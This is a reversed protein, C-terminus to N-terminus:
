DLPGVIGNWTLLRLAEVLRQEQKPLELQLRQENLRFADCYSTFDIIKPIGSRDVLWNKMEVRGNKPEIDLDPLWDEQQLLILLSSFLCILEKRTPQDVRRLDITDIHRADIFEQEIFDALFQTKAVYKEDVYRLIKLYNIEANLMYRPDSVEEFRGSPIKYVHDQHRFVSWEWGSDVYEFDRFTEIAPKTSREDNCVRLLRDVDRELDTDHFRYEGKRSSGFWPRDEPTM